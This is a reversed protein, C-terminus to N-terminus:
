NTVVKEVDLGLSDAIHQLTFKAMDFSRDLGFAVLWGKILYLRIWGKNYAAQYCDVNAVELLDDTDCAILELRDTLWGTSSSQLRLIQGDTIM